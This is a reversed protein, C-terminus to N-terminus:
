DLLSGREDLWEKPILGEAYLFGNKKAWEANTVKSQQGKASANQFVFRIDLHPYQKKVLKMKRRDESLFWGKVEVIIGNPLIFDPVYTRELVYSLRQSEYGYEIGLSDLQEAVNAEIKSNVVLGSPTEFRQHVQSATKRKSILRSNTTQAKRKRTSM